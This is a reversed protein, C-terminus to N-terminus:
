ATVYGFPKRAPPMQEMCHFYKGMKTRYLDCAQVLTRMWLPFRDDFKLELIVSDIRAERLKEPELRHAYHAAAANRDFTIRVNEDDAAVWAEREYYILMKPEAHITHCLQFYERLVGYSDVDEPDCLDDPRPCCGAVLRDLSERRIVARQKLIVDNVRRKIECFLPSAPKQDYYRVRLKYRNKQGQVTARYTTLGSDDFYLSYIPYAYRLEPRAYPDRQLYSRVFDRVQRACPEDILYKLEYRSRQYHHEFLM